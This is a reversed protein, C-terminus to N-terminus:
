AIIFTHSRCISSNRAEEEIPLELIAGRFPADRLWRYVPDIERDHTGM